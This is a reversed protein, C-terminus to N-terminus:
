KLTKLYVLLVSIDSPSVGSVRSAQGVNKPKILNLKQRAELRLGKIKSYDLKDDLKLNEQKKDREIQLMQRKIYGEYKVQTNIQKLISTDINEFINFEEQINMATINNRKILDRVKIGSKPMSENNKELFEQLKKTPKIVTDMIKDANNLVSQKKIFTNWRTNSILGLEKAKETLRLDSNDQRLHLRYEARSTMMRYPENTGKTVLDDILVGIYADSRKLTFEPKNKIKLASNIGAILGQAAAEEYGSTGNVQGAFYLGAIKKYELTPYLELSNIADYEIAYADRMVKVNELGEMTRLIELQVDVPLSTSLGQVYTEKTSMAEPELFIQHRQKDAFRVIKDEISPCYRPGVGVKEGSYMASKHINKSIVNHTETNTYALYCVTKNKPQKKTLFSFTQINEDGYQIELKEKNITDEHIRTPTGTKFRRIEIGLDLLSQTLKSANKFGNPGTEEIFNSIMVKSRLYVGSCVIVTKAEYVQGMTTKVGTIKNGKTLLESVEAQKIDLNKENELTQKMKTHYNIKDVQARLSHVAPGKGLNLMRLQTLTKDTNIGMQGGLADIECVLHGKATGGISPNCALYSISDLNLTLILTKIGMRAQALGAEVGAHGSGVIITEYDKNIM